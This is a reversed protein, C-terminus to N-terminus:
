LCVRTCINTSKKDLPFSSLYGLPTVIYGMWEFGKKRKIMAYIYGTDVMETTYKSYSLPVDKVNKGLLQPLQPAKSQTVTYRLPLIQLGSKRCFNCNAKNGKIESQKQNPDISNVTEKIKSNKGIEIKKRETDVTSYKKLNGAWTGFQKQQESNPNQFTKTNLYDFNNLTPIKNNSEAMINM